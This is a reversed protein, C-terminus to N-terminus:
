KRIPKSLCKGTLSSVQLKEAALGATIRGFEGVEINEDDKFTGGPLIAMCNTPESRADKEFGSGHDWWLNERRFLEGGDLCLSWHKPLGNLWVKNWQRLARGHSNWIFSL